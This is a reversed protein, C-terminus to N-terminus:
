SDGQEVITLVGEMVPHVVCNYYFQQDVEFPNETVQYIVDVDPGTITAAGEAVGFIIEGPAPEGGDDELQFIQFNHAVSDLNIFEFRFVDEEPQAPLTLEATDTCEGSEEDFACFSQSNQAAVVAGEPALLVPEKNIQLEAADVGGNASWLSVGVGFVLPALGALGIVARRGLTMDERDIASALSFAVMLGAAVVLAVTLGVVRTNYLLVLALGGVLVAIGALVALPLVIPLVVRNRFDTNM